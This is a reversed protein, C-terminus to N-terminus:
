KLGGSKRVRKAWRETYRADQVCLLTSIYENNSTEYPDGDSEYKFFHKICNEIQKDTMAEIKNQIDM